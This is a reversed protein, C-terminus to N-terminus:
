NIHRNYYVTVYINDKDKIFSIYTIMFSGNEIIWKDINKTNCGLETLLKELFKKSDKVLLKKDYINFNYGTMVNDDYRVFCHLEHLKQIKEKYKPKLDRDFLNQLGTLDIQTNLFNGIEKMNILTETLSSNELLRLEEINKNIIEFNNEGLYKKVDEEVVNFDDKYISEKYNGENDKKLSYIDSDVLIYIKEVNNEHDVGIGIENNEIQLINKKNEESLEGEYMKSFSDKNKVNDYKEDFYSKLKDSKVGYLNFINDKNQKFYEIDNFGYVIRLANYKSKKNFRVSKEESIKSNDLKFNSDLFSEINKVKKKKKLLDFNIFFIVICFLLILLFLNKGM